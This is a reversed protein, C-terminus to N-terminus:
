AYLAAALAERRPGSPMEPLMTWASTQGSQREDGSSQPSLSAATKVLEGDSGVGGCVLVQGNIATVAASGPLALGRPQPAFAEWAGTAADLLLVADGSAGTARACDQPPNLSSAQGGFIVLKDRLAVVAACVNNAAAEVDTVPAWAPFIVDWNGVEPDFREIFHPCQLGNSGACVWLASRMVTATAGVRPASLPPLPAWAGASPDFCEVIQLLKSANRGGCVVVEGDLVAAAMGSRRASLPTVREWVGAEAAFRECSSQHQVGDEGGCVYLKKHLTIAAASSRRAAMSPLPVWCQTFVDFREASNLRQMGDFGGCVFLQGLLAAVAAAVRPVSMPPLVEWKGIALDYQEVVACPHGSDDFGGCVYVVGPLRSALSPSAARLTCAARPGATRVVASAIGKGAVLAEQLTTWKASPHATQKAVFQCRHLRAQYKELNLLGQDVLCERLATLETYLASFRKGLDRIDAGAVQM